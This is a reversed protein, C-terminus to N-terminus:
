VLLEYRIFVEDRKWGLQEYLSQAPRNDHATELALGKARTEEAHKKAREMLQRGVGKRRAQEAVFLYNLIWAPRMSVSSFTPYLQTFGVAQGNERALFVVSEGKSIRAALFDMAGALDTEQGYSVRYADFLPVLEALHEANAQLIEASSM